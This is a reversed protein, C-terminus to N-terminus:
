YPGTFGNGSEQLEYQGQVYINKYWSLRGRTIAKCHGDTFIFNSTNAHRYRPFMGCGPYNNPDNVTYSGDCDGGEAGGGGNAGSNGGTKGGLDYFGTGIYDPATGMGDTWYDEEPDFYNYAGGGDNVGQEAVLVTDAPSQLQALTASPWGGPGPALTMVSTNVGYTTGQQPAPFDPCLFVGSTGLTQGNTSNYDGSKLYPFIFTPWLVNNVDQSPPFKEDSDQVYQIFALGLQKENSLCATRRANERVKQFVPFLIAALIAIIAIVVLLEILTFGSARRKM